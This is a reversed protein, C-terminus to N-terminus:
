GESRLTPALPLRLVRRVPWLSALALIILVMGVLEVVVVFQPAALHNITSRAVTWVGVGIGIGVVVGSAIWRLERWGYRALIHTAPAGLAIRIAVERRRVVMAGAAVGFAGIAAIGCGCVILGLAVWFIIQMPKERSWLIEDATDFGLAGADGGAQTWKNLLSQRQVAEQGIPVSQFIFSRPNPSREQHWVAEIGLAPLDRGLSALHSVVAVIRGTITDGAVTPLAVSAGVSAATGGLKTASASDITLLEEERAENPSPWHGALLRANLTHGATVSASTCSCFMDLTVRDSERTVRVVNNGIPTFSTAVGGGLKDSEVISLYQGFLASDRMREADTRQPNLHVRTVSFPALSQRVSATSRGSAALGSILVVLITAVGAQVATFIHQATSWGRSSTVRQLAQGGGGNVDNRRKALVGAAALPAILCIVTTLALLAAVVEWRLDMMSAMATPMFRSILRFTILTLILAVTASGFAILASELFLPRLAQGVRAGLARQISYAKQQELARAISISCLNALLAVVLAFAALQMLVFFGGDSPRMADTWLQVRTFGSARAPGAKAGAGSSSLVSSSRYIEAVASALQASFGKIDVGNPVRVIVSVQDSQLDSARLPIAFDGDTGPFTAGSPLVGVITYLSGRLLISKGIVDDRSAYVARWGHESILAVPMEAREEEPSFMRGLRLPPALLQFASASVAFGQMEHGEYSAAVAGREAMGARYAGWQIGAPFRERLAAFQEGTLFSNTHFHHQIALIRQPERFQYDPYFAGLMWALAIANACVSIAISFIAVVAYQPARRLQRLTIALQLSHM